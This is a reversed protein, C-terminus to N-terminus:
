DVLSNDMLNSRLMVLRDVMFWNMVFWHVMLSYMMSNLVMSWHVMSWHMVSDLVMLWHMMSGWVVSDLVVSSMLDMVSDWHVMLSMVGSGMVSWDVMGGWMMLSNDVMLSRMMLNRMMLNCMLLCSMMYWNNM